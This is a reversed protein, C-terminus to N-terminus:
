ILGTTGTRKQLRILDNRVIESLIRGDVVLQIITPGGAGAMAMSAGRPLVTEGDQLLALGEGRGSNFVGGSHLRPINPTDIRITGGGLISPLKIQIKFNNWKDIVWNLANRFAKKLGDFLGGLARGVRGPLNKFWDIVGNWKDKIWNIVNSVGEKIKDWHKMILGAITWNKFIRVVFDIATKIADKIWDWVAKTKEKVFEWGAAIWKKIKDWNAIILAVLGVVAAIVLAIPGMAILWAAAVKAAHILSQVGLVAWAAIKKGVAAVHAGASAVAQKANDILGKKLMQLAPFAFNAAGGALDAWGQLYAGIGDKGPGAMIAGTGEIMDKLGMTAREAGDAKEGMAGLGDGTDKAKGDVDDLAREVKGLESTLDSADGKLTVKVDAM